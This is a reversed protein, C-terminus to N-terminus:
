ARNGALETAELRDIIDLLDDSLEAAPNAGVITRAREAGAAGIEPWAARQAWARELAADLADETAAAAVFATEGDVAAEINGGVDTTIVPRGSLMAEIISLPLGECRSPLVLAHHDRWIEGPRNTFGAFDVSDLSLMEAMTRLGVENHGRGLFTVSLPRSRWQPRALVRLLLDQGKERADLRAVCALRLGTADDPWPFRATDALNFPNRVIRARPLAFGLQEETLRRNHDSVFLAAVADRYVDCLEERMGDSPWYLDSAKQSILLYPQRRRRCLAGAFWGDYNLGQSIVVLEPRQRGFGSALRREMIRRHVSWALSLATRAKRPLFRGGQLDTIACRATALEAVREQTRDIKQKYISVNHGARALRLAAQSWLEESGGWVDNSSIFAVRRINTKTQAM